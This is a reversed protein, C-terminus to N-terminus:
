SRLYILSLQCIKQFRKSIFSSGDVAEELNTSTFIQSLAREKDDVTMTNEKILMDMNNSINSIAFDLSERNIDYLFYRTVQKLMFKLLAM